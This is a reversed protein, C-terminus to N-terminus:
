AGSQAGSEGGSEKKKTSFRSLIAKLFAYLVLFFNVKPLFADVITDQFGDVITKAADQFGLYGVQPSFSSRVKM